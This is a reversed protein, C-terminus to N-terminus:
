VRLFQKKLWNVGGPSTSMSSVRCNLPTSTVRPSLLGSTFTTYKFLYNYCTPGSYNPFLCRDGSRAVSESLAVTACDDLRIKWTAGIHVGDLVRNRPYV